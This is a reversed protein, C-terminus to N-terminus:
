ETGCSLAICPQSLLSFASSPGKGEGCRDAVPMRPNVKVWHQRSHTHPIPVFDWNGSTLHETSPLPFLPLAQMKPKVM